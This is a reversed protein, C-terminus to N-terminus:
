TILIVLHLKTRDVLYIQSNAQLIFYLVVNAAQFVTMTNISTHLIQRAATAIASIALAQTQRLLLSPVMPLCFDDLYRWGEESILVHAIDDSM